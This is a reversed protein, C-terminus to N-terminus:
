KKVEMNNTKNQKFVKQINTPKSRMSPYRSLPRRNKIYCERCQRGQCQNGCTMCKKYIRYQKQKKPKM